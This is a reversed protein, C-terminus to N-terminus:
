GCSEEELFALADWARRAWPACPRCRAGVTRRAYDSPWESGFRMVLAEQVEAPPPPEAVGPWTAARAREERTKAPVLLAAVAEAIAREADYTRARACMLLASAVPFRVIRGERIVEELAAEVAASPVTLLGAAATILVAPPVCTDGAEERDLIARDIGALLRVHARPDIGTAKAIADATAWGIGDVDDILRYPDEVILEAARKGYRELIARLQRGNVGAGAVLGRVRVEVRELDEREVLVQQIEKAREPTIGKVAGAVRAPSTKLVQLAEDGFAAVIRRAVVDGVWPAHARLYGVVGAASSPALQEVERADFTWGFRADFKWAGTFEYELGAAPTAGFTGKASEGSALSVIAFGTDPKAFRVKAVTARLTRASRDPSPLPARLTAPAVPPM